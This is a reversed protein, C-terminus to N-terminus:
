SNKNLPWPRKNICIIIEYSNWVVCVRFEFSHYCKLHSVIRFHPFGCEFNLIHVCNASSIHTIRVAILASCRNWLFALAEKDCIRKRQLTIFWMFFLLVILLGLARSMRYNNNKENQQIHKNANPISIFRTWAWSRVQRICVYVISRLTYFTFSNRDSYAEFCILHFYGSM